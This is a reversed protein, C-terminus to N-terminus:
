GNGTAAYNQYRGTMTRLKGIRGALVTRLHRERTDLPHGPIDGSEPAVTRFQLLEAAPLAEGIQRMALAYWDAYEAARRNMEVVDNIPRAQIETAGVVLLALMDAKAQFEERTRLKERLRM